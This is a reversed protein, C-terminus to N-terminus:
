DYDQMRHGIMTIIARRGDVVISMNRGSLILETLLTRIM